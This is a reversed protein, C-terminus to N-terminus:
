LLPARSYDRHFHGIKKIISNEIYTCVFKNNMKHSVIFGLKILYKELLDKLPFDRDFFIKVNTKLIQLIQEDKINYSEKSKNFVSNFMPHKINIFPGIYESFVMINITYRYNDKEPEIFIDIGDEFISHIKMTYQGDWSKIIDYGINRLDPEQNWARALFLGYYTAVKM